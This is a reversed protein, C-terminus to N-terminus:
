AKIGTADTIYRGQALFTPSGGALPTNRHCQSPQRLVLEPRSSCSMADPSRAVHSGSLKLNTVFFSASHGFCSRSFPKRQFQGDLNMFLVGTALGFPECSIQASRSNINAGIRRHLNTRRHLKLNRKRGVDSPGPFADGDLALPSYHAAIRRPATRVALTHRAHDIRILKHPLLAITSQHNSITSQFGTAM